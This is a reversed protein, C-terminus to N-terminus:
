KAQKDNSVGLPILRKWAVEYDDENVFDRFAVWVEDIGSCPTTAVIQEVDEDLIAEGDGIFQVLFIHRAIEYERFKEKANNLALNYENRFGAVADAHYKLFRDPSDWVSGDVHAILGVGGMPVKGDIGNIAPRLRWPFPTRGSNHGSAIQDYLENFVNKINMTGSLSAESFEVVHPNNAFRKGCREALIDGLQHFRQHTRMFDKPWIVSKREIVMDPQGVAKLLVEPQKTNRDEVDPCRERYYSTEHLINYHDVFASIAVRWECKAHCEKGELLLAHCGFIM